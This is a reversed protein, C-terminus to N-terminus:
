CCQRSPTQPKAREPGGMRNEPEGGKQQAAPSGDPEPNLRKSISPGEKANPRGDCYNFRTGDWAHFGCLAMTLFITTLAVILGAQAGAVAQM